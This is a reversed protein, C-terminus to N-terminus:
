RFKLHECYSYIFMVIISIVTVIYRIEANVVPHLSWILRTHYDITSLIIIVFSAILFFVTLSIGNNECVHTPM